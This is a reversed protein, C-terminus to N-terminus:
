SPAPSVDLLGRRCPTRPDRTGGLAALCSASDKRHRAAHACARFGPAQPPHEALGPLGAGTPPYEPRREPASAAAPLRTAFGERLRELWASCSKPPSPRLGAADDVRDRIHAGPVILLSQEVRLREAM